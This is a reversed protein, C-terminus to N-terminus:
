STPTGIGINGSGPDYILGKVLAKALDDWKPVYNLTNTGVQPDTESTTGDDVGDKFGLPMDGVVNLKRGSEM